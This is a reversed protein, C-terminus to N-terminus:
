AAPNPVFGEGNCQLCAEDVEVHKGNQVLAYGVEGRGSCKPCDIFCSALDPPISEGRRRLDAYRSHRIRSKLDDFPM